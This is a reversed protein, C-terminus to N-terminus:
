RPVARDARRRPGQPGAPSLGAADRAAMAWGLIFGLKDLLIPYPQRTV